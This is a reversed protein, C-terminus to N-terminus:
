DGLNLGREEVLQKYDASNVIIGKAACDADHRSWTWSSDGTTESNNTTSTDLGNGAQLKITYGTEKAYKSIHESATMGTLADTAISRTVLKSEDKEVRFQNLFKPVIINAKIELDKEISDGCRVSALGKWLAIKALLNTNEKRLSELESSTSTTQKGLKEMEQNVQTLKVKLRENDESQGQLARNVEQAKGLQSNLLTNTELAKQLSEQLESVQKSLTTKEATLNTNQTELPSADMHTKNVKNKSKTQHTNNIPINLEGVFPSNSQAEDEELSVGALEYVKRVAAEKCDVGGSVIEDIMNYELAQTADFIAADTFVELDIEPRGALVVQRCNEATRNLSHKIKALKKANLDETNSKLKKDESGDSTIETRKIGMNEYYGKLSTHGSIVGLSGTGANNESALIYTCSTITFAGASYCHGNILGVIPKDSAQITEALTTVGDAAGGGTQYDLVVGIYGPNANVERILHAVRETSQIGSWTSMDYTNKLMLGHIPIYLVKKVDFEVVESRYDMEEFGAKHRCLSIVSPQNITKDWERETDGEGNNINVLVQAYYEFNKPNLAWVQNM